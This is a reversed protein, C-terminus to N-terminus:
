SATCYEKLFIVDELSTEKNLVLKYVYNLSVVKSDFIEKITRIIEKDIHNEMAKELILQKKKNVDKIKSFAKVQKRIAFQTKLSTFFDKKDETITNIESVTVGSQLESSSDTAKVDSVLEKEEYIDPIDIEIEGAYEPEAPAPDNDSKNDNVDNVSAESNVEDFPYEPEAYGAYERESEPKEDSINVPESVTENDPPKVSVISDTNDTSVTIDEIKKEINDKIDQSVKNLEYSIVNTTSDDLMKLGENINNFGDKIGDTSEKIASINETLQELKATQEILTNVKNLLEENDVKVVTAQQEPLGERIKKELQMIKIELRGNENRADDLETRIERYKKEYFEKDAKLKSLNDADVDPKSNLNDTLEEIESNKKELLSDKEKIQEKLDNIVDELYGYEQSQSYRDFEIKEIVNTVASLSELMKAYAGDSTNNELAVAMAHPDEANDLCKEVTEVPIGSSYAGQIESLFNTIDDKNKSNVTKVILGFWRIDAYAPKSLFFIVINVNEKGGFNASSIYELVDDKIFGDHNFIVDQIYAGIIQRCRDESTLLKNLQEKYVSSSELNEKKIHV